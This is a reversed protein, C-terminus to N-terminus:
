AEGGATEGELIEIANKLGDMEDQRRRQREEFTSAKTECEEKIKDVYGHAAEEEQLANTEDTETDGISKELTVVQQALGKITQKTVAIEEKYDQMKEKYAAVLGQELNTVDIKSKAYDAEATELLSIVQDAVGSGSAGGSDSGAFYEQLAEVAKGCAEENAQATSIEEENQKKNVQRLKTIRKIDDNLEKLRQELQASKKQLKQKEASAREKRASLKEAEARKVKLDKAGRLKEKKCYANKDNEGAMEKELKSIMSSLMQKVKGFPGEAVRISVQALSDLRGGLRSALKQLYISAETQRQLNRELRMSSAARTSAQMQLFSTTMPPTSISHTTSDAIQLFDPAKQLIGMATTLAKIEAAFDAQEEDFKMTAIRCKTASDKLTKQSKAIEENLTAIAGEAKALKEEAAAQKTKERAILNVTNELKNSLQQILLQKRMQNESWEQQRQNRSAIEDQMFKEFLEIVGDMSSGDDSDMQKQQLQLLSEKNAISVFSARTLAALAQQVADVSQTQLLQAGKGEAEAAEAQRKKVSLARIARRLIDVTEGSEKDFAAFEAKEEKFLKKEEALDKRVEQERESGQSLADAAKTTLAAAEEKNAQESTLSIGLVALEKEEQIKTTECDQELQDQEERAKAAESESQQRMGELMKVVSGISPTGSKTGSVGSSICSAAALVCSLLGRRSRAGLPLASRSREHIM